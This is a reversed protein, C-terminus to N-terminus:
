LLFVQKGLSEAKKITDETGGTRDASPLAVLFDCDQAILTNRAHNIKTFDWRQPNEPLLSKDPLHEVLKVSFYKALSVAFNDAGKKCGGSVFTIEKDKNEQAITQLFFGLLKKDELTNRRRSGVIGIKLSNKVAKENSTQHSDNKTQTTNKEM